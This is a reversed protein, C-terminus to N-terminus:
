FLGRGDYENYVFGDFIDILTLNTKLLMEM